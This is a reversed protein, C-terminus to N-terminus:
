DDAAARLTVSDLHLHRMCAQVICSTAVIYEVHDSPLGPNEARDRTSETAVLRFVEEAVSRPYDVPGAPVRCGAELSALSTITPGAFTWSGADVVDPDLRLLDDLHDAITGLANTLADPRPPDNDRLWRDTLSVHGWPIEHVHTGHRVVTTEAAVAVECTDIGPTDASAPERPPAPTFQAEIWRGVPDDGGALHWAWHAHLCKVGVRTGGVGGTPRPGDHDEPIAADREDAYRRHADALADADVAAEAAAVGGTSELQGIRRSESEGVLWFRTPMPTGDELLPENRLVVPDDSDDRVVVEFAGRPTRGLLERVREHDRASPTM